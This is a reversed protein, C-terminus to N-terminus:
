HLRHKIQDKNWCHPVSQWMQKQRRRQKRPGEHTVKLVHHEMNIVGATESQSYSSEMGVVWTSCMPTVSGLFIHIKL